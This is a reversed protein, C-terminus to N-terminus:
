SERRAPLVLRFVSGGTPAGFLEVRGGHAQAIARVIALGLGSGDDDVETAGAVGSAPRPIRYFPQFIREREGPPIGPGSDEVSLWVAESNTDISVVVAGGEPTYRIANALLNLLAQVLLPRSGRVRVASTAGRWLGVRRDHALPTMQELLESIVEQLDVWEDFLSADAAQQDLRALLLLRGCLRSLREVEEQIRELQSRLPDSVDSRLVLDLEGRIRTLPTRLQHAAGSSFQEMQRLSGGLRDLMGNLVKALEDLEDGRGVLPLRERLNTGTIQSAKRTMAIVPRLSRTTVFWLLFFVAVLGCATVLLADRLTRRVASEFPGLSVATQIVITALESGARALEVRESRLRVREGGPLIPLPDTHLHVPSGLNGGKWSEPLPLEADGLNESRALIRGRADRIQYFYIHPTFRYDTEIVFFEELTLHSAANELVTIVEDCKTELTRELLSLLQRQTYLHLLTTLVLAAGLALSWSLLILRWRLSFSRV